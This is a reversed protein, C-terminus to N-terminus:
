RRTFRELLDIMVETGRTMNEVSIRENNGHVGRRDPGPIVTTSFGYSVIGLDRVFHSDTFGTSVGPVVM